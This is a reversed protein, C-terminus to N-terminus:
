KKRRTVYLSVLRIGDDAKPDDIWATLVNASKGNAGKLLMIQEYRMGYGNDGKEVLKSKDYHQRINERLDQWNELTYGLDKEFKKAKNPEKQPNLSYEIFKDEPMEAFFQINLKFKLGRKVSAKSKGRGM